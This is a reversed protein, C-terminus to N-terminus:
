GKRPASKRATSKKSASKKVAASGPSSKKAATARSTSKWMTHPRTASRKAVAKKAPARKMTSKIRQINPNFEVVQEFTPMVLDVLSSVVAQRQTDPITDPLAREAIKALKLEIIDSTPEHRTEAWKLASKIVKKVILGLADAGLKALLPDM